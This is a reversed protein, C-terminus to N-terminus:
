RAERADAALSPRLPQLLRTREPLRWRANASPALTTALANWPAPWWWCCGAAEHTDRGDDMGDLVDVLLLDYWNDPASEALLVRQV